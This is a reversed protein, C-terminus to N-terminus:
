HRDNLAEALKKISQSCEAVSNGFDYLTKALTTTARAFSTKLLYTAYAKKYPKGNANVLFAIARARNRPEGRSMLLKIFRKRTM